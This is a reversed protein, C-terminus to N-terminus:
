GRIHQGDFIRHGSGCRLHRGEQFVGILEAAGVATTEASADISECLGGAARGSYNGYRGALLAQEGKQRKKKARETAQRRNRRKLSDGAPIICLTEFLQAPCMGM